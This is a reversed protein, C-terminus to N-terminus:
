NRRFGALFSLINKDQMGMGVARAVLLNNSNQSTIFERFEDAM